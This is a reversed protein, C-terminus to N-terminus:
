FYGKGMVVYLLGGLIGLIGLLPVAVFIIIPIINSRGTKGNYCNGCDPCKVHTFMAPGYFSGWPTWAVRTAGEAGCSPCPEYQPGEEEDEDRRRAAKGKKTKAKPKVSAVREDPDDEDEDRVPRKRAKETPRVETIGADPPNLVETVDEDNAPVLILHACRPCKVKKGALDDRVRLSSKCGSCNLTVPM